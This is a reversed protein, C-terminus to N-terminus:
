FRNIIVFYYKKYRSSNAKFELMQKIKFGCKIILGEYEELSAGFPDLTNVHCESHGITWEIICCGGDKVCSMWTKLCEEPNITHDFANSYIFDVNNIWEDKAKNFDWKITNPYKESTEGIETGIVYANTFESFWKQENGQRTGHCIGFALHNFNKLLYKSLFEIEERKAWQLNSKKKNGAIQFAVYEEYNRYQHLLM